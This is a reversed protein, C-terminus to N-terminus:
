SSSRACVGKKTETILYSRPDYASAETLEPVDNKPAGPYLTASIRARSIPGASLPTGM